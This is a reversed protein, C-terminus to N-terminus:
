SWWRQATSAAKIRTFCRGGCRESCRASTSRLHPQVLERGREVALAWDSQCRGFRRAREHNGVGRPNKFAKAFWRTAENIDKTVGDGFYYLKGLFLQAPGDGAEAAKRTYAAAGARDKPALLGDYLVAGYFGQSVTDGLDAARKFLRVAEDKNETYGLSGNYHLQAMFNVAEAENMGAARQIFPLGRAEDKQISDSGLAYFKGLKVMATADGLASSRELLALGKATDKTVGDGGDVFWKGLFRMAMASNQAVAQQLYNFSKASNQAPGEYYIIAGLLIQATLDGAEAAEVAYTTAKAMNSSDNALVVNLAYWGKAYVDGMQAAKLFYPTAGKEDVAGGIGKQLMYGYQGASVAHGQDAAKKIWYRAKVDNRPIGDVGAFHFVGMKYQADVDGSEGAKTLRVAMQPNTERITMTAVVSQPGSNSSPANYPGSSGSSSSSSSKSDSSSSSSTNNRLGSQFQADANQRDNAATTARMESMARQRNAEDNNQNWDAHASVPILLFSAAFLAAHRQLKFKDIMHRHGEKSGLEIGIQPSM